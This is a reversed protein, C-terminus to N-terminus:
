SRRFGFGASLVLFDAFQVSRDGDVDGQGYTADINGFHASLALFDAFDIDGDVDLDGRKTGLIEELLVTVDADDVIGNADLDFMAQGDTKAVESMLLDIDQSDVSRDENFDGRLPPDTVNNLVSVRDGIFHTSIVDTDGDLDIDAATPEILNGVEGPDLLESRYRARFSSTDAEAYFMGRTQGDVSGVVDLDGDADFDALAFGAQRQSRSVLNLVSRRGDNRLWLLEADFQGSEVNLYLDVDGDGETDGVAFRDYPKDFVAGYVEVAEAFTGDGRNDFRHVANASLRYYDDDGDGDADYFQGGRFAELSGMGPLADAPVFTTDGQNLFLKDGYILDTHGNSDVDSSYIPFLPLPTPFQESGTIIVVPDLDNAVSIPDSFQLNGDSQNEILLLSRGGPDYYVIDALSNGVIDLVSFDATPLSFRPALEFEHVETFSGPNAFWAVGNLFPERVIIDQDGDGDLDTVTSGFPRNVDTAVITQPLATAVDGNNDLWHIQFDSATALLPDLQDDDDIDVMALGLSSRGIILEPIADPTIKEFAGDQNEYYQIEGFGLEDQEVLLYDVDGDADADGTTIDILLPGESVPVQEYNGQGNNRLYSAPQNIGILATAFDQDGDGDVDALNIETPGTFETSTFLTEEEELAIGFFNKMVGVTGFNQQDGFLRKAVVLDSAGDADFDTALFTVDRLDNTIDQHLSIGNDYTGNALRQHRRIEHGPRFRGVAVMADPRGSNEIDMFTFGYIFSGADMLSRAAAFEYKSTREAWLLENAVNAVIDTDGDGDVDHMSLKSEFDGSFPIRPTKQFENTGDLREYWDVATPVFNKSVIIVVDEDGDSDFDLVEMGLMQDNYTDVMANNVFEITDFPVVLLRRTELTEFWRPPHKPM